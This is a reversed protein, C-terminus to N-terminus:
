GSSSVYGYGGSESSRKPTRPAPPNYEKEQKKREKEAQARMEERTAIAIIDIPGKRIEISTALPTDGYKSDGLPITIVDTVPDKEINGLDPLFRDDPLVDPLEISGIGKKSGIIVTYKNRKGKVFIYDIDKEPDLLAGHNDYFIFPQRQIQPKLGERIINREAVGDTLLSVNIADLKTFNKKQKEFAKHLKTRLAILTVNTTIDLSRTIRGFVDEDGRAIADFLAQRVNNKEEDLRKRDMRIQGDVIRVPSAGEQADEIEIFIGGVLLGEKSAYRPEEPKTVDPLEQDQAPLKEATM